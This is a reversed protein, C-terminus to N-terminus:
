HAQCSIKQLWVMRTRTFSSCHRKIANHIFWVPRAASRAAACPSLIPVSVVHSVCYLIICGAQYGLVVIVLLSLLLWWLHCAQPASLGAVTISTCKTLCMSLRCGDCWINNFFICGIWELLCWFRVFACGIWRWFSIFLGAIVEWQLYMYQIVTMGSVPSRFNLHLLTM